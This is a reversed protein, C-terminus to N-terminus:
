LETIVTENRSYYQNKGLIECLKLVIHITLTLKGTSYSKKPNEVLLILGHGRSCKKVKLPTGVHTTGPKNEITGNSKRPQISVRDFKFHIHGNSYVSSIMIM